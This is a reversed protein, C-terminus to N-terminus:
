VVSKRDKVAALTKVGLAGDQKAGVVKQLMKVARSVGSNVAFDFVAYDLGVPLHDCQGLAWYSRRYIEAVTEGDIDRVDEITAPRGLFDSLTSQTIGMNTPGGPDQPDNVFGGEHVLVLKLAADFNDRM